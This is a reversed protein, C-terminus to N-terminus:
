MTSSCQVVANSVQLGIIGFIVFYFLALVLLDILATLVVKINDVLAQCMCEDSDLLYSQTLELGHAIM